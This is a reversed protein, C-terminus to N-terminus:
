NTIKNEISKLSNARNLKNIFLWVCECVCAANWTGPAFRTGPIKTQNWNRILILTRSLEKNENNYVIKHAPNILKHACINIKVIDGAMKSGRQGSDCERPFFISFSDNKERQRDISSPNWEILCTTTFCFSFAQIKISLEWYQQIIVCLWSQFGGIGGLMFSPLLSLFLYFFYIFDLFFYRLSKTQTGDPEIPSSKIKPTYDRKFAKLHCAARKKIETKKM